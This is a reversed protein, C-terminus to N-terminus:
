LILQPPPIMVHQIPVAKDHTIGFEDADDVFQVMVYSPQKQQQQQQQQQSTNSAAQKKHTSVVVTAQYFSTTDPYVAYVTDGKNLREIPNLVIVQSEPLDFVLFSIEPIWISIPNSLTFFCYLV